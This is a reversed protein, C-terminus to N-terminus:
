WYAGICYICHIAQTVEVRDGAGRDGLGSRCTAGCSGRLTQVVAGDSIMRQPHSSIRGCVWCNNNKVDLWNRSKMIIYQLIKLIYPFHPGNGAKCRDQVGFTDALQRRVSRKNVDSWDRCFRDMDYVELRVASRLAMM